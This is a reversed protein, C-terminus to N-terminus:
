HSVIAAHCLTERLLSCSMRTFMDARLHRTRPGKFQGSYSIDRYTNIKGIVRMASLVYFMDDRTRCYTWQEYRFIELDTIDWVDEIEECYIKGDM